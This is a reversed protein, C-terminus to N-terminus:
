IQVILNIRMSAANPNTVFTPTLFEFWAPGATIAINLGTVLLTTHRNGNFVLSTTLVNSETDNASKLVLSTTEATGIASANYTTILCAIVTGGQIPNPVIGGTTSSIAAQIGLYYQTDDGLATNTINFFQYVRTDSTLGSYAALTEPTVWRTTDAGADVEAQTAIEGVGTAGTTADQKINGFSTAADAVDSLNNTDILAGIAFPAYDLDSWEDVGNALKWKNQDTSGFQVDTSVLITKASYVTTDAGWGAETDTLINGNINLTPM